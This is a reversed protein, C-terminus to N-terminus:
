LPLQNDLPRGFRLSLAFGAGDSKRRRRSTQLVQKPILESAFFRQFKEKRSQNVPFGQSENRLIQKFVCRSHMHM